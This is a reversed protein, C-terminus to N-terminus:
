KVYWYRVTTVTEPEMRRLELTEPRDGYSPRWPYSNEQMETLGTRYDIGWFTGDDHKLVLTHEREWRHDDGEVSTVRTWAYGPITFGDADNNFLDEVLDTSITWTTKGPKTM